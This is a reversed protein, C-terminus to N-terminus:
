SAPKLPDTDQGSIFLQAVASERTPFFRLRPYGDERARPEPRCDPRHDKQKKHRSVIDDDVTFEQLALHGTGVLAEVSDHFPVELLNQFHHRPAM